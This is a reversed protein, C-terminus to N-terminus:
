NGNFLKFSNTLLAPLFRHYSLFAISFSLFLESSKPIPGIKKRHPEEGSQPEEGLQLRKIQAQNLIQCFLFTQSIKEKKLDKGM